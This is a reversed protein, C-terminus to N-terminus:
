FWLLFLLQGFPAGALRRVAEGFQIRDLKLGNLDSPGPAKISLDAGLTERTAVMRPLM